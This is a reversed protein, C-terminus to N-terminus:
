VKVRDYLENTDIEIDYIPILIKGNASYPQLKWSTGDSRSFVDVRVRLSDILVYVQLSDFARYHEFKEGYDREATTPSLIEFLVAPNTLMDLGNESDFIPDEALSGDPFFCRSGPIGVAQDSGFFYLNRRRSQGGVSVYLNMALQNHNRQAGAMESVVGDAYELKVNSASLRRFFESCSVLTANM